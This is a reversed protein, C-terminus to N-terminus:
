EDCEQALYAVIQRDETGIHEVLWDHLFAALCEPSISEGALYEDSIQEAQQEFDRHLGRHRELGPYGVREMLAEEDHFHSKAHLLVRVLMLAVAERAREERLADDLENVIAYLNRHQADVVDDGTELGPDWEEYAL